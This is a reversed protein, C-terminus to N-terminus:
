DDGTLDAWFHTPFERLERRLAARWRGASWGDPPAAEAEEATLRGGKVARCASALQDRQREAADRSEMMLRLQEPTM